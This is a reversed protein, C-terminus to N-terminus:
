YIDELMQKLANISLGVVNYYCGRIEKVFIGGKGQIGYAGAKDMPEGTEIYKNIDDDSLNSFEVDTKLTKKLLKGSKLNKVAIATYVQHTKGSLMKLMNFADKKDKPKGLINDNISVVTDASIIIADKDIIKNSVNEAKNVAIDEVYKSINNNFTISKEDFDSVLIEFDDVLRTLLEQRRESASALIIKLIDCGM